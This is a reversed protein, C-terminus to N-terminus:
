VERGSYIWRGNREHVPHDFNKILYSSAFRSGDFGGVWWEMDGTGDKILVITCGRGEFGLQLLQDSMTMAVERVEKSQHM